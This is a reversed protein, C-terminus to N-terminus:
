KKKRKKQQRRSRRQLELEPKIRTKVTFYSGEPGSRHVKVQLDPDASLLQQRRIDAPHYSEFRAVSNWPSGEKHDNKNTKKKM